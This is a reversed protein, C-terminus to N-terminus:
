QDRRPRQPESPDSPPPTQASGALRPDPVKARLLTQEMLSIRGAIRSRIEMGLQDEVQAFMDVVRAHIWGETQSDIQQDVPDVIDYWVQNIVSKM